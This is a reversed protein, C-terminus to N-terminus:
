KMDGFRQLDKVEKCIEFKMDESNGKIFEETCIKCTLNSIRLFEESIKLLLWWFYEMFFGNEFMKHYECSFTNKVHKILENYVNLFSNLVSTSKTYWKIGVNIMKIKISNSGFM